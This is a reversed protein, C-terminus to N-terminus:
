DPIYELIQNVACDLFSCLDNLTVTTIPLNHKLRHILGKSVGYKNILTYTTVGKEKMTAYLPKYSIM